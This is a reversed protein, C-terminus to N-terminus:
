LRGRSFRDKWIWRLHGFGTRWYSQKTQNGIRHRQVIRILAVGDRGLYRVLEFKIQVNFDWGIAWTISGDSLISELVDRRAVMLGSLVDRPHWLHLVRTEVNLSRVGCQLFLPIARDPYRVGIAAHVGRARCAMIVREADDVPYTGDGDSIVVWDGTAARVGAMVAAGYGCGVRDVDDCRVVQVRSDGVALAADSTGDSSCNDVVIIEDVCEPVMGVLDVM